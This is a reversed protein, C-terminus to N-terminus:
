RTTVAHALSAVQSDRHRKGMVRFFPMCHDAALHDLLVLSVYLASLSLSTEKCSPLLLLFINLRRRLRLGIIFSFSSIICASRSHMDAPVITPRDMKLSYRCITEPSTPKKCDASGLKAPSSRPGRWVLSRAPGKLPEDVVVGVKPSVIQGAGDASAVM